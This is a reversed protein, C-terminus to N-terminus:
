TAHNLTTPYYAKVRRGENKYVSKSALPQKPRTVNLRQHHIKDRQADVASTGHTVVSLDQFLLYVPKKKPPTIPEDSSTIIHGLNPYGEKQVGVM